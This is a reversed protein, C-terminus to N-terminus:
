RTVIQIINNTTYDILIWYPIAAHTRPLQKWERSIAPAPCLSWPFALPNLWYLRLINTEIAPLCTSFQTPLSPKDRLENLFHEKWLLAWSWRHGCYLCIPVNLSYWWRTLNYSIFYLSTKKVTPDINISEIICSIDSM